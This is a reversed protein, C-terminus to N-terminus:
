CGAIAPFLILNVHRWGLMESLACGDATASLADQGASTRYM